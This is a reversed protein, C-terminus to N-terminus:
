KGPFRLSSLQRFWEQSGSDLSADVPFGLPSLLRDVQGWRVRGDVLLDKAIGAALRDLMAEPLVQNLTTARAARRALLQVLLRDLQEQGPLNVVRLRDELPIAPLERGLFHRLRQWGESVQWFFQWPVRANVTVLLDNVVREGDVVGGAPLRTAVEQLFRQGTEQAAKPLQKRTTLGYRVLLFDGVQGPAITASQRKVRGGTGRFHVQRRAGAYQGQKPM